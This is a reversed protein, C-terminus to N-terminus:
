TPDEGRELAAWLTADTRAREDGASPAEYRTSMGIWRHGSAAIWVGGAVVLLGCLLSLVPWVAHVEVRTGAAVGPHKAAALSTARAASIATFGLASRWVLGVGAAAVLVGVARRVLGRTALVAVVGALAVVALATPAADVTRGSIHLVTDAFPRPRRTVVSQWPRLAILLALGAGVLDLLLAAAYARRGM